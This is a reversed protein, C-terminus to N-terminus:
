ETVWALRSKVRGPCIQLGCSCHWSHKLNYFQIQLNLKVGVGPINKLQLLITYYTHILPYRNGRVGWIPSLKSYLLQLFLYLIQLFSLFLYLWICIIMFVHFVMIFKHFKMVFWMGELLREAMITPLPILLSFVTVCERTRHEWRLEALLKTLSAWLM